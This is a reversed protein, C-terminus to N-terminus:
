ASCVWGSQAKKAETQRSGNFSIQQMKPSKSSQNWTTLTPKPPYKLKMVMIIKKPYLLCTWGWCEWQQPPVDPRYAQILPAAGRFLITNPEGERTAAVSTKLTSHVFSHVTTPSVVYLPLPRMIQPLSRKREDWAMSCCSRINQLCFCM